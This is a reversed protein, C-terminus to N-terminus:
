SWSTVPFTPTLNPTSHFSIPLPFWLKTLFINIEQSLVYQGKDLM